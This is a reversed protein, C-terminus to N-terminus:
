LRIVQRPPLTEIEAAAGANVIRVRQHDPNCCGATGCDAADFIPADGNLYYWFLRKMSISRRVGSLRMQRIGPKRVYNRDLLICAEPNEAYVAKAREMLEVMYGKELVEKFVENNKPNIFQNGFPHQTM